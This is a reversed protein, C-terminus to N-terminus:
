SSLKKSLNEANEWDKQNDLDINYEAPTVIKKVNKFQSIEGNKLAEINIVYISGTIIYAAPCDQRRTYPSPIARHINENEDEVYLNYYPNIDTEAVSVVMDCPTSQYLHICKQIDEVRRFPSTPQLILITDYSYGQKEYYDLAHIIADRSPSFDTSLEEPRIFPINLQFNNKAIDIVELSNTTICIDEPKSVSLASEIAYSILPKGNLEKWNKGPIGKSDRRAPLITLIKM